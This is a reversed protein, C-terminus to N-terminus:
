NLTGLSACETEFSPSLVGDIDAEGSATNIRIWGAGGGGGGSSPGYQSGDIQTEGAQGDPVDGASGDGGGPADDDVGGPAPESSAQGAWGNADSTGGGGSGGNAALLGEVIVDPAELLIAGGAGAGNGNKWGAGNGPMSIYGESGIYIENGAVLQIAGGGGGAEDGDERTGGSSGGQLPVIEANGYSAGGEGGPNGEEDGGGDGGRGCYGGGGAGVMGPLGEGAGPGAGDSPDNTKVGSFGGLVGISTEIEDYAEIFGLIAIDERAILILPRQGHIELRVGPAVYLDNAYIVAIESRDPQQVIDCHIGDVAACRVTCDDTNIWARDACDDGDFRFDGPETLVEFADDEMNSVDFEMVESLLAKEDAIDGTTEDTTEDTTESSWEEGVLYESSETETMGELDASSDTDNDSKTGNSNFGDSYEDSLSDNTDITKVNEANCAGIIICAGIAALKLPLLRSFHNLSCPKM